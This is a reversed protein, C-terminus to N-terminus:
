RSRSGCRAAGSTPSSQAFSRLDSGVAIDVADHEDAVVDTLM